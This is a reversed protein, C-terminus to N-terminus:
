YDSLSPKKAVVRVRAWDATRHLIDVSKVLFRAGELAERLKSLDTSADERPRLWSPHLIIEVCMRGGFRLVRWCEDLGEATLLQATVESEADLNYYVIVDFPSNREQEPTLKMGRDFDQCAGTLSNAGLPKGTYRTALLGRKVAFTPDADVGIVQLGQSALLKTLNTVPGCNLHLVNDGIAALTTKTKIQHPNSLLLFPSSSDFQTSYTGPYPSSQLGGAAGGM